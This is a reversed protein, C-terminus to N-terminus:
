GGFIGVCAITCLTAAVSLIWKLAASLRLRGDGNVTLHDTM